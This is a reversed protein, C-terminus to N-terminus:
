SYQATLVLHCLGSERQLVLNSLDDPFASFQDQDNIIFDSDNSNENGSWFPDIEELAFRGPDNIIFDSDNSNENGNWFPDIEELDDNIIFDSDNSNDNGRWFPDNKELSDDNLSLQEELRQLAQSGEFLYSSGIEGMSEGRDLHHMGNSKIVADSSDLRDEVSGPSQRPKSLESIIATSGPYQPAYSSPSRHFTSTSVTSLLSISGSSHRGQFEIICNGIDINFTLNRLM